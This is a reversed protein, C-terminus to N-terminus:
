WVNAANLLKTIWGEKQAAAIAGKDLFEVQANGIKSSMVSNDGSIDEPRVIGRIRRVVPVLEPSLLRWFAKISKKACVFANCIRGFRRGM